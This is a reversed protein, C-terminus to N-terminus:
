HTRETSTSAKIRHKVHRIDTDEQWDSWKNGADRREETMERVCQREKKRKRELVFGCHGSFGDLEDDVPWQNFVSFLRSLSTWDSTTFLDNVSPCQSHLTKNFISNRDGAEM